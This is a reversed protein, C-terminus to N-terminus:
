DFCSSSYLMIQIHLYYHDNIFKFQKLVIKSHWIMSFFFMSLFRWLLDFSQIVQKRDSYISSLNILTGAIDVHNRHVSKYLLKLAKQFYEIANQQHQDGLGNLAKAASARRKPKAKDHLDFARQYYDISRHFDGKLRYLEVLILIFVLSKKMM